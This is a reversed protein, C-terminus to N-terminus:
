RIEGHIQAEKYAAIAWSTVGLRRRTGVEFTAALEQDAYKALVHAYSDLTALESSELGASDEASLTTRLRVGQLLLYSSGYVPACVRVGQPDNTVNLVGYKCRDFANAGRYAGGFLEDEWDM